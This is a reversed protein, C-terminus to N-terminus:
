GKEGRTKMELDGFLYDGGAGLSSKNPHFYRIACDKLRTSLVSFINEKFFTKLMFSLSNVLIHIISM